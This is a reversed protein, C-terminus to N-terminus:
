PAIPSGGFLNLKAWQLLMITKADIIGGGAIMAYADDFPVELVAIDEGEDRLGGGAGPRAKPDYEAVFFHLKETFAGPSMFAEYVKRVDHVAYGTEESVEERIRVEPAAGDLVGAAAEILDGRYGNLFAPLRFQRILIVSRRASNYLLVAAGDGKDYVERKQEQWSGDSRRWAFTVFRLLYKRKSLIETAIIRVRDSIDTM